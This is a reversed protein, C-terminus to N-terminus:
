TELEQAVNFELATVAPGDVYHDTTSSLSFNNGLCLYHDLYKTRGKAGDDEMGFGVGVADGADVELKRM